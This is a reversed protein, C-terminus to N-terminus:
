ENKLKHSGHIWRARLKDADILCLVVLFTRTFLFFKLGATNVISCVRLTRITNGIHTTFLRWDRHLTQLTDTADYFAIFHAFKRVIVRCVVIHTFVLEMQYYYLFHLPPFYYFGMCDPFMFIQARTSHVHICKISSDLSDIRRQLTIWM